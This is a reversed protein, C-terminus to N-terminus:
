VSAFSLIFVKEAIAYVTSQTTAGVVLPMISADAVSLGRIGHVTLEEDVVGGLGKPMKACTGVPHYASPGFSASLYKAIEEDSTVNSGPSIEIPSLTQIVGDGKFYSRVTKYLEVMVRLDVPNSLSRYDVLPEGNPDSPDITVSGRSLPHIDFIYSSEAGRLPFQIWATNKSRVAKVMLKLQAGYGTIVTPDTGHPLLTAADQKELDAAISDFAQPAIV